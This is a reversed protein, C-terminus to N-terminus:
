QQKVEEAAPQALVEAMAYKLAEIGQGTVSSIEYFPLGESDALARLSEIRETDQAIDIKSAVVFMSRKALDERFSALEGMIVRFDEVPERGSTESVDV